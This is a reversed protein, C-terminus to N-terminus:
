MVFVACINYIIFAYIAHQSEFRPCCSPLRLCIWQAIAGGGWALYNLLFGNSLAM